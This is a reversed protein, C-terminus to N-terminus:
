SLLMDERNLYYRWAKGYNCDFLDVSHDMTFLCKLGRFLVMPDQNVSTFLITGNGFRIKLRTGVQEGENCLFNALSFCYRMMQLDRCIYIVDQGQFAAKICRGIADSTIGHATM